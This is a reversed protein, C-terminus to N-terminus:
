SIPNEDPKGEIKNTNHKPGCMKFQKVQKM